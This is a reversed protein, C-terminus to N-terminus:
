SVVWRRRIPRTDAQAWNEWTTSDAREIDLCFVDEDDQVGTAFTAAEAVRNREATDTVLRARGRISFEPDEHDPFSHLMYRANRQLDRTKPSVRPITVYVLGEAFIPCVPHVRPGGDNHRVTALFGIAQGSQHIREHGFAALEPDAAAFEAWSAL